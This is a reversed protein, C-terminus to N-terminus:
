SGQSVGALETLAEWHRPPPAPRFPREVVQSPELERLHGAYMLPQRGAQYAAPQVNLRERPGRDRHLRRRPLEALENAGIISLSATIRMKGRRSLRGRRLARLLTPQAGFRAKVRCVETRRLRGTTATQVPLYYSTMGCVFM